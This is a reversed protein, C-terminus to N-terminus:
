RRLKLAQSERRPRAKPLSPPRLRRTELRGIPKGSLLWFRTFLAVAVASLGACLGWWMGVIGMRMHFGLLIALAFGVVYHGIVNAAFAFRTDGAGRLVGAGVGQVGDSIQFVAAVGLLPVSFAMVEPRPSILHALAGPMLLFCLGSLSM